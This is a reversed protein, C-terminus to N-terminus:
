SRRGLWLHHGITGAMASAQSPLQLAPRRILSYTFPKLIQFRHCRQITKWSIVMTKSSGNRMARISTSSKGHILRHERKRLGKRERTNINTLPTKRRCIAGLGWSQAFAGFSLTSDQTADSFPLSHRSAPPSLRPAVNPSHGFPITHSWDQTTHIQIKPPTKSAFLGTYAYSPPLM